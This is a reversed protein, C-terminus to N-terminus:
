CFLAKNFWILLHLCDLPLAPLFEPGQRLAPEIPPIIAAAAAAVLCLGPVSKVAVTTEEAVPLQGQLQPWMSLQVVAFSTQAQKQRPSLESNPVKLLSGM